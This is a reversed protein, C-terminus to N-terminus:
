PKRLMDKVEPPTSLVTPIAFDFIRGDRKRIVFRASGEGEISRDRNLNGEVLWTESQDIAVL